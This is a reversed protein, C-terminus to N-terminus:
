NILLCRKLINTAGAAAVLEHMSGGHSTHTVGM